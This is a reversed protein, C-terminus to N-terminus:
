RVGRMSKIRARLAMLLDDDMSRLVEARDEPSLWEMRELDVREARVPASELAQALERRAHELYRAINALAGAEYTDPRNLEGEWHAVTARLHSLDPVRPLVGAAARWQRLLEEDSMARARRDDDSLLDPPNVVKRLADKLRRMM